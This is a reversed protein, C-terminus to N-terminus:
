HRYWFYVSIKKVNYSIRSLCLNNVLGDCIFRHVSKLKLVAVSVRYRMLEERKTYTNTILSGVGGALGQISDVM